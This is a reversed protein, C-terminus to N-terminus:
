KMDITHCGGCGFGQHTQMDYPPEGMASAMQPSVQEAMFKAIEPKEAFATMKGDKLALHPLFEHPNKYEPGHCTKCGFDAYKTADHAQFVKSMRPLVNQKMFAMQQEKPMADSWTTPLTSPAAPTMSATSSAAEANASPAPPPQPPPAEGGCAAISSLVVLAASFSVSAVLTTRM